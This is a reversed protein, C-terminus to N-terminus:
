PYCIHNHRQIQEALSIQHYAWKIDLKSFVKSNNMDQVVEDVTPTPYRECLVASNARRMDVCLRIDNDGKPVVM